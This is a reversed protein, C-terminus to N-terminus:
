KVTVLRSDVRGQKDLWVECADGPGVILFAQADGIRIRPMSEGRYDMAGWPGVANAAVTQPALSHPGTDDIAEARGALPGRGRVLPAKVCKRSIEGAAVPCVADGPFAPKASYGAPCDDQTCVTLSKPANEAMRNGIVAVWGGDHGEQLALKDGPRVHALVRMGSVEMRLPESTSAAIVLEAKSGTPVLRPPANGVWLRVGAYTKGPINQDRLVFEAKATLAGAAPPAPLKVDLWLQSDRPASRAPRIGLAAIATLAALALPICRSRAITM